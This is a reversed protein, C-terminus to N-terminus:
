VHAILQCIYVSPRKALKNRLLLSMSTKTKSWKCQYYCSTFWPESALDWSNFFFYIFSGVRLRREKRSTKVGAQQPQGLFTIQSEPSRLPTSGSVSGGAVFWRSLLVAPISRFANLYRHCTLPCSARFIEVSQPPLKRAFERRLSVLALANSCILLSRRHCLLYRSSGGRRSIKFHTIATQANVYVHVRSTCRIWEDDLVLPAENESVKEM